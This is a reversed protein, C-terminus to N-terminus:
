AMVPTSQLVSPSEQINHKTHTPPSPSSPFPLLVGAPLAVFFALSMFLAHLAILAPYRTINPDHAEIDIFWYSPPTPLHWQLIETENIKSMPQGSHMHMHADDRIHISNCAPSAHTSLPALLLLLFPLALATASLRRMPQPPLPFFSLLRHPPLPTSIFTKCLATIHQDPDHM